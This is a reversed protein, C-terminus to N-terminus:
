CCICLFGSCVVQFLEGPASSREALQSYVDGLQRLVEWDGSRIDHAKKLSVIALGYHGQRDSNNAKLAYFQSVLRPLLTYFAAASMLIILACLAYRWASEPRKSVGPLDNVNNRNTSM